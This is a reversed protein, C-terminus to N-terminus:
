SEALGAAVDDDCFEALVAGDHGCLLHVDRTTTIHAVPQLPRDRVIALVVDRLEDPVTDQSADEAGLPARVETRADPGAPLKLHWGADSGGSRRRLTIKKAALDRGPTDFYVARLTQPPQKEIRTIAALGAFSPSLTSDDVDYKREVEVYRSADPTDVAM